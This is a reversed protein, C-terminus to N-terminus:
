FTWVGQRSSLAITLAMIVGIVHQSALFCDSYSPVVPASGSQIGDRDEGRDLTALSVLLMPVTSQDEYDDPNGSAKWYSGCYRSLQSVDSAPSKPGPGSWSGSPTHALHRRIQRAIIFIVPRLYPLTQLIVPELLIYARNM